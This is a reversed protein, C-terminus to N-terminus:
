NLLPPIPPGVADQAEEPPHEFRQWPEGPKERIAYWGPPLDHLEKLTPDHDIPHHLCSLVPGGGESMSDGLFQWDGNHDHSVYTVPEDKKSVTESLYSSTHPGDSFKWDYLSSSKDMSTWFDYEPAGHEIEGSLIPQLFRDDFDDEGQFRNELDPYILQLVPVDVGEYYWDTRLMVRHLWKPDVARFEVDIDGGLLGRHRGVSLDVGDEMRKVAINLAAHAAEAPLGVTILEPKACTDYLGTTYSFRPSCGGAAVHMNQHGQQEIIDIAELFWPKIDHGRWMRSRETIYEHTSM